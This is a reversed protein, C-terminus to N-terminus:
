EGAPSDLRGICSNLFKELKSLKFDEVLKIASDLFRGYKAHDLRKLNESVGEYDGVSVQAVMSQMIERPPLSLEEEVRGDSGSTAGGYIMKLNLLGALCTFLETVIIPKTKYDSFGALIVRKRLEGDVDAMASIAIVPLKSCTEDQRIRMCASYGDVGEMQLDMIVAHPKFERCADILGSAGVLERTQFGVSRLTEGVMTRSVLDNDVLLVRIDQNIEGDVKYGTVFHHEEEVQLTRDQFGLVLPVSFSFRSGPGSDGENKRDPLPSTLEMRGGMLAVLDRCIALGLGTGQSFYQRHGTQRFPEFIMQQQEGPVGSGTDEVSFYLWVLRQEEEVREVKVTLRIWGQDTFKFANSFLNIIIQRLRKEDGIVVQPLDSDPRFIFRLGKEEARMGGIDVLTQLLDDPAFEGKELELRGSEVKALDLIDNVIDLLHEGSQRIIRIKDIHEPLLDPENLMLHTFGMIGHLPTRLEHSMNALFVSKALNATQTDTIDVLFGHYHNIEGSEDYVVTTSERVWVEGGQRHILRYPDRCFQKPREDTLRHSEESVRQRDDPHILDRYRVTDDCLEHAQCGILNSINPSVEKVAWDDVDQWVISVAPSAALLELERCIAAHSSEEKRAATLKAAGLMVLVSLLSWLFFLFIAPVVRGISWASVLALITGALLLVAAWGRVKVASWVSQDPGFSKSHENNKAPITM